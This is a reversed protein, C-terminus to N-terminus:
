LIYTTGSPNGHRDTRFRPEPRYFVIPDRRTSSRIIACIRVCEYHNDHNNESQRPFVPLEPSSDQTSHRGPPLSDYRIRRLTVRVARRQEPSTRVRGGRVAVRRHISRRAPVGRITFIYVVSSSVSRLNVQQIWDHIANQPRNAGFLLLFNM